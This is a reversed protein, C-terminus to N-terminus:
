LVLIHDALLLRIRIVPDQCFSLLKNHLGHQGLLQRSCHTNFEILLLVAIVRNNSRHSEKYFQIERLLLSFM